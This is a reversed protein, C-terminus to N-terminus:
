NKALAETQQAVFGLYANRVHWCEGASLAEGVEGAGVERGEENESLIRATVEYLADTLADMGELDTAEANERAAVTFADLHHMLRRTPETVHLTVDEGGLELMVTMYVHRRGTLDVIQEVAKGGDM